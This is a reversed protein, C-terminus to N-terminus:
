NPSLLGVRMRPIYIRTLPTTWISQNMNCTTKIYDPASGSNALPLPGHRARLALTYNPDTASGWRPGLAFAGSAALMKDM